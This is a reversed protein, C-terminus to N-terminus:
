SALASAAAATAARRVVVVTMDDRDEAAWARVRALLHDRIESVGADRVEEFARCLRDHGFLQGHADPAETLGDTYLLMVDGPDLQLSGEPMCGSVDPMSGVWAGETEVVECAGGRARCILVDEHGGAFVMKGEGAWRFLCLTAHDDKGLRARVNDYVVRNLTTTVDTPSAEPDQRVLAAVGSQLMLMMLGANLGHGSVDGIALWGGKPTALVDYYDGGVESATRMAAAIELGVIRLDRPLICTQIRTAIDLEDQFRQQREVVAMGMTNFAHALQGIEDGSRVDVRVEGHGDELQQAAAAMARVPSIITRRAVGLLVIASGAAMAFCIWFLRRRSAEYAAREADLSFVISLRGLPRADPTKVLRTVQLSTEGLEPPGEADRGPMRASDTGDRAWFAVRDDAKWSWLGASVIDPNARLNQLDTRAAEHDEFDLPAWLSIAMLDAVMNAATAKGRSLQERERRTLEVFLLASGLMLVLTTVLVLKTGLSPWRRVAARPPPPSPTMSSAPRRAPTSLRLESAPRAAVPSSNSREVLM